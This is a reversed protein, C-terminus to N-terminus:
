AVRTGAVRAAAIRAPSGTARRWGRGRDLWPPAKIEPLGSRMRVQWGSADITRHHYWCLLVGNDTHTGDPDHAHPTVHHAECWGAPVHCGPIVCGGDRVAMARRQQGTFCREAAGLQVIRGNSDFVVRQVAGACGIHRAGAISIPPVGDAFAVGRGSVLDQANVAVVLTPANGAVSPAEAARAAVGILAALVDHLKQAHSRRDAGALGDQDDSSVEGCAERRAPGASEPTRPNTCADTYQRLAGAVEPMLMGTVPVLGHLPALLRLCRREVDRESPAAGDPDLVSHWVSAQLRVCDADFAPPEGPDSGVCGSVIESEAVRVRKPTTVQLAPTLVDVIAAAADTGLLGEELAEAVHAFRAPLVEGTFSTAARTARGLRIRRNASTASCGTVRQVLEVPNRCGLRQALGDPGLERRSREAAEGALAVRLADVRRGISETERLAAVLADDDLRAAARPRPVVFLDAEPAFVGDPLDDWASVSPSPAAAPTTAIQSM